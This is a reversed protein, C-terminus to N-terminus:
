YYLFKINPGLRCVINNWRQKWTSKPRSTSCSIKLTSFVNDIEVDPFCYMKVDNWRRFMVNFCSWIEPNFRWIEASFCRWIEVNFCRWIEVNCCRWIEINFCRWTEDNFCLLIEVNIGKLLISHRKLTSTRRQKLKTEVQQSNSFNM